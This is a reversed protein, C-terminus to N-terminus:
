LSIKLPSDYQEGVILKSREREEQSMIGPSVYIIQYSKKNNLSDFTKLVKKKWSNNDSRLSSLLSDADVAPDFIILNTLSSNDKENNSSSNREIGVITRSHGLHQFYLPFKFPSNGNSTSSGGSSSSSSNSVSDNSTDGGAYKQFYQSVFTKIRSTVSPQQLLSSTSKSFIHQQIASSSPFDVVIARIGFYRFLTACELSSLV